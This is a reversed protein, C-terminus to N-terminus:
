INAPAVGGRYRASIVIREGAPWVVTSGGPAIYNYAKTMRYSKSGAPVGDNRAQVLTWDGRSGVRGVRMSERWDIIDYAWAYPHAPDYLLGSDAIKAAPYMTGDHASTDQSLGSNWAIRDCSYSACMPGYAATVEIDTALDLALRYEYGDATQLMSLTGNALKVGTDANHRVAFTQLIDIRSADMWDTNIASLNIPVGDVYVTQATIATAGPTGHYPWWDAAYAAGVKRLAIAAEMNAAPASLQHVLNYVEVVKAVRVMGYGRLDSGTPIAVESRSVWGRPGDAAPANVGDGGIFTMTVSHLGHTLGRVAQRTYWNGVAEYTTVQGRNVGDVSIQWAGGQNNCYLRLDFGTGTFSFSLQTGITATYPNKGATNSWAAGSPAPINIVASENDIGNSLYVQEILAKEAVYASYHRILGDYDERGIQHVIHKGGAIPFAAEIMASFPTIGGAVRVRMKGDNPNAAGVNDVFSAGLRDLTVIAGGGGVLKVM